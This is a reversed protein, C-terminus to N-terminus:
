AGAGWLRRDSRIPNVRNWTELKERYLQRYGQSTAVSAGEVALELGIEHYIDVNSLDPVPRQGAQFDRWMGQYLAELDRVLRPTDFLLTSQRRAMMAQKLAAM